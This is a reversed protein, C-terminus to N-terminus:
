KPSKARPSSAAVGLLSRIADETEAYAGEGIHEYRRQGTQDHLFMNPWYHNNFSRWIESEPDLAVPYRVDNETLFAAVNATKREYDFEPTHISLVILGDAAYREHWAKVYPLVNKCNYCGFTWFEYLVVHGQLDAASTGPTNLWEKPNVAPASKALVPLKSAVPAVSGPSAAAALSAAAQAAASSGPAVNPAAVQAAGVSSGPGVTSASAAAVEPSSSPDTVSPAGAPAGAAIVRAPATRRAVAIAGASLAVLALLGVVFPTASPRANASINM